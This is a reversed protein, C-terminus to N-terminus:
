LTDSLVFSIATFYPSINKPWQVVIYVLCFRLHIVKLVICVRGLLRRGEVGGGGGWVCVCVDLKRPWVLKSNPRMLSGGIIYFDRFISRVITLWVVAAYEFGNTEVFM